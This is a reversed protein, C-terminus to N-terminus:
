VQMLFRTIRFDTPVLQSILSKREGLQGSISHTKTTELAEDLTMKPFITPARKALM